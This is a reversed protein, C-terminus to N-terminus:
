RASRAELEDLLRPMCRALITYVEEFAAEGRGWPDPVDRGRLHVEPEFDRMLLLVGKSGEDGRERRLAEADRLNSASMAVLYDFRAFHAATLQQARQGDIQVGHARAVRQSGVDPAEGVHYASTGSSDVEYRSTLGRAEILAEFLGHALPSRCINGLCFFMVSTM